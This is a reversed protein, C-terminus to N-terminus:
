CDYDHLLLIGSFSGMSKPPALLAEVASVEPVRQPQTTLAHVGEWEFCQAPPLLQLLDDLEHEMSRYEIKMDKEKDIDFGKDRIGIPITGWNQDVIDKGFSM